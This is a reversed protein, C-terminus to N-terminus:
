IADLAVDRLADLLARRERGATTARLIELTTPIDFRGDEAVDVIGRRDGLLLDEAGDEAHDRGVVLVIRDPDGVVGDETEVRGHEGLVGVARAVDSALEPRARDPVVAPAGVEADREAPELLGSEAALPALL